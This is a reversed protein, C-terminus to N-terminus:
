AIQKIAVEYKTKAVKLGAIESKLRKAVIRSRRNISVILAAEKSALSQNTEALLNILAEKKM